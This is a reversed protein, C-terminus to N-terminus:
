QLSQRLADNLEDERQRIKGGRPAVDDHPGPALRREVHREVEDQASVIELTEGNDALRGTWGGVVNAVDPYKALFADPDAAVM